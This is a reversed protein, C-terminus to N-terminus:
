DSNEETMEKVAGLQDELTDEKGDLLYQNM